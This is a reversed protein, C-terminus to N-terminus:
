NKALWIAFGVGVACVGAGAWVAPGGAAVVAFTLSGGGASGTVALTGAGTTAATALTGTSIPEM